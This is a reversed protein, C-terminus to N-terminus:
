LNSACIECNSVFRARPGSTQGGNFTFQYDEYIGVKCGCGGGRDRTSILIKFSLGSIIANAPLNFGYNRTYLWNNTGDYRTVSKVYVNDCSGAAHFDRLNGDGVITNPSREM